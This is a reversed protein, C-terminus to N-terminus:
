RMKRTIAKNTSSPTKKYIFTQKTV